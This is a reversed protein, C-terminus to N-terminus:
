AGFVLRTYLALTSTTLKEITFRSRVRESGRRGMAQREAPDMRFFGAIAQAVAESDDFPVLFGTAEGAGVLPPALVAERGPAHNTSVVPVRMAQSELAVRPFGEASAINLSLDAAAFAAPMDTMHGAFHVRSAVGLNRALADLEARYEGKGQHDDGVSVLVFDPAGLEAARGVARVAAAHGKRATVRAAILVVAMGPAVGWDQRLAEIREPAIAEPDFRVPDVGRHIVTVNHAAWPYQAVISDAIAQSVAIVGDGRAMVSNYFRKVRGTARYDSHYTTVFRIGTRRAAALASWAVARSRAHLVDVKEARVLDALRGINRAMVLPSKSAVPLEIHEAGAARLEAVMRGGESVVIARHGEKVLRAAVQLAGLEAGGAELRPITQLVTLRRRSANEPM